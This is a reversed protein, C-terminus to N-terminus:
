AGLTQLANSELVQVAPGDQALTRVMAHAVREAAIPRWRSPILSQFPKAIREGWVEGARVPQGLAARDGILLSPRAIVLREFGVAKLQDEAAGKIRNYFVASLSSAGLASVVACRKAGAKRAARAVQLVADLDVAKFAEQSGAQKITTGLAIYLAQPAGNIDGGLDARSYDVRQQHLRQSKPLDDIPRRVLASVNLPQELLVDLLARGVLGSAGAVWVSHNIHGM